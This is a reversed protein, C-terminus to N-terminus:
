FFAKEPPPKKNPNTLNPFSVRERHGKKPPGGGGGGGGPFRRITKPNATSIQV